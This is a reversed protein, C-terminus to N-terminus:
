DKGHPHHLKGAASHILISEGRQLRAINFLCHYATVGPNVVSAAAEFSLSYPIKTVIKAPARAYTRMCGPSCTAVRDGPQLGFSKCASGVRTVVGACDIGLTNDELRGLAAFVDRFSLGWAKTEIEIEEPGLEQEYDLDPVFRMTDLLGPTMVVLKKPPGSAWKVQRTQPSTLARIKDSVGKEEVLRGSTILGKRVVYEIDCAGIQFAANFVKSIYSAFADDSVVEGSPEILLTVIHKEEAESRLARFFGQMLSYCPHRQNDTCSTVWLLNRAGTTLIKFADFQEASMEPLFPVDLEILSIVVQADAIDSQKLLDVHVVNATHGSALFVDHKLKEAFSARCDSRDVVLLVDLGQNTPPATEVATSFMLSFAHCIKSEHDRIILDNGSFGNGKLLADWQVENIGPCLSRWKEVGLWWGPLLGFAFNTEVKDPNVIEVNILHGGPKVLCRVNQITRTLDSTAHLVSGAIVLDYAGPEFGQDTVQEELDLTKFRLREDQFKEEAKPFFAGSIDTYVYKSFAQAGTREEYNYLVSLMRRTWEGTGAGVELIKLNPQEHVVLQLLARFKDNAIADFVDAYLTEALGEDFVLQLPDTKGCLIPMLNSAIVPFIKFPPHMEELERLMEDLDDENEHLDVDDVSVHKVHHEMWSVYKKFSDLVNDFGKRSLQEYTRLVVKNLTSDLNSRYQGIAVESEAHFPAQCLQHLQQPELLSLHPDWELSYIPKEELRDSGSVGIPKLVVRKLQCLVSNDDKLVYIVGEVNSTRSKAISRALYRLSSTKKYQWGSASIWGDYLKHPVLTSSGSSIKTGPVSLLQMASDLIAPHALFYRQHKESAEVRAIASYNGDWRIADLLRFWEGYKIGHDACFQYFVQQDIPKTCSEATSKYDEVVQEHALRWEVGNEMPRLSSSDYQIRICVSFCETWKGSSYTSITVISSLHEKEYPRRITQLRTIMETQEDPDKSIIVANMFHAEKIHYGLVKRDISNTQSVAEMAM